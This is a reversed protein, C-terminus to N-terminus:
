VFLMVALVLAGFLYSGPHKAVAILPDGRLTGRHALLWLGNVIYFLMGFVLWLLEPRAYLAPGAEEVYLAFVLLSLYGSSIGLMELLVTDDLTYSRSAIGTEGNKQCARLEAVRKILALSVFFFLSFILLWSSVVVSIAMAGAFIRLTYLCALTLVDVIPMRKLMLSYLSSICFYAVLLLRFPVPLSASLAVSSLLLAPALFLGVFPSLAGSAFPRRSKIANRRDSPADLLDNSVYVASACLSFSAVATVSAVFADLNLFLHSTLLPVFVLLNKLWQHPRISKLVATFFGRQRPFVRAGPYRAALHAMSLLPPQVMVREGAADWVVRDGLSNGAYAFQGDGFHSRLVDAKTRPSLNVDDTTSFVQSFLGLHEAIAQAITEHAGTALYLPRGNDREARLFSLLSQNYPLATADLTVRKAVQSKLFAKGRSFWVPLLLVYGVNKKLLQLCSEVLTDTAVLTGDLDVCLPLVGFGFPSVAPASTPQEFQMMNNYMKRAYM